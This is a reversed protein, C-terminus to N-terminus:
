KSDFLMYFKLVKIYFLNNFGAWINAGLPPEAFGQCNSKNKLGDTLLFGDM